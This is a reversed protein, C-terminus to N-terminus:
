QKIELVAGRNGSTVLSAYRALDVPFTPTHKAVLPGPAVFITVPSAVAFISETGTTAIVHLTPTLRRPFSLKWSTSIEPTVIGVKGTSRAYGDAAHSAGQEHSTLIHTFDKKQKYLEDYINLIAGGPYGFVTDVGQEKLCELVIQAGTLQKMM